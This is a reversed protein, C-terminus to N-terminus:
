TKYRTESNRIRYTNLIVIFQVDARTEYVVFKNM